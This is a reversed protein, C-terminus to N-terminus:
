FAIFPRVDANFEKSHIRTETKQDPQLAFYVANKSDVETSTWAFARISFNPAANERINYYLNKDLKDVSYVEKQDEHKITGGLGKCAMLWQGVTPLFWRSFGYVSPNFGDVVFNYAWKAAPHDHGDTALKETRSVGNNQKEWSNTNKRTDEICVEKRSDTEDWKMENSASYSMALGRYAGSAEADNGIYVVYAVHSTNAAKCGDESTYFKGDKGMIMGVQAEDRTYAAKDKNANFRFVEKVGPIAKTPDPNFVWNSSIQFGTKYRVVFADDVPYAHKGSIGNVAYSNTIDFDVESMDMKVAAYNPISTYFTTADNYVATQITLTKGSTSGKEYIFRVTQKFRDKFDDVDDGGPMVMEWIKFQEWLKALTMLDKVPMAEENLGGLGTTHKNFYNGANGAEEKYGQPNALIALLQALYQMKEKQVGLDVPYVQEKCGKKTYVKLNKPALHFSMWHTDEKGNASYAPRVCIWYCSDKDKVVDGFRYYADGKFSGNEGMDAVAVMRLQQLQPMQKVDVDITAITGAGGVTLQLTGVGDVTYTDSTTTAALNKGTLSNYRTVAETANAVTITRVRPQSQDLVVGLRPEFTATKWDNPLSDCVSLQSVLRYLADGAESEKEYPDQAIEEASRGDKDDDDDSCATVAFSLGLVVAAMLMWNFVKKNM